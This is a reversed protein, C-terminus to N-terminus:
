RNFKAFVWGAVLGNAATMDAWSFIMWFPLNFSSLNIIFVPIGAVVFYALGFKFGAWFVTDKKFVNKTYGWVWALCVGLVLPYFWFMMMLPDDMARFIVTNEYIAQFGPFAWSYFVNIVLNVLIMLVGALVGTWFFGKKM